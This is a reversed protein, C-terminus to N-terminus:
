LVRLSRGLLAHTGFLVSSYISTNVAHNCSYFMLLGYIMRICIYIHHYFIYKLDFHFLSLHQQSHSFGLSCWTHLFSQIQFAVVHPHLFSFYKTLIISSDTMVNSSIIFATALNESLSVFVIGVFVMRAFLEEVNKKNKVLRKILQWLVNILVFVNIAMDCLLYFM